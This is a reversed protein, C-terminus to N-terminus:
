EKQVYNALTTRGALFKNRMPIVNVVLFFKSIKYEANKGPFPLASM